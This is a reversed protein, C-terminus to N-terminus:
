FGHSASFHFRGSKKTDEGAEKDMPIGYDLMIPGIPTNIRLGLGFSSKFGGSNEVGNANKNSFIDGAKEWVNGVDYFAAVKLFSFLPYTYEINGVVMSEGGLPDHDSDSTVPGVKREEYGRITYAGGAFFREYIPLKETDGYPQALGLRGRVELVAGRPMPFYHSARGFFKTYNKDGGLGAFDLSATLYNGKRTNFVNDRSDYTLSPTVVSIINTGVEEQLDTSTDDVNGIKIQDLRYTLDGRLYESIEKGLRLDGGTVTEDYGYGTDTDRDHMRRYLDFGFSVPYDFMWPETFSLDFGNSLNGISARVKLNQGAGTFYPWNKWDFNKQEVEVFGVFQDVTSYGGGFSFAGTKSEKVDVVLNKKDPVTTEETDYSIEEFFGLNTLREKSRRLKEGDFKEGPHIRMERRIVIDKTKINGRVKIKDVYVVQNEAIDYTIDVRGTDTNVLTSEQIQASIYGRDFYLGQIGTLDKKMSEQSFVKGPICDTLNKLIEKETVDKNGQVNVSGVLYKKGEIIKIVVFLLYSNKAGPKVEYDVAVDTFGERQYFSKIREMDEKLVEEKLVGANFFWARKTKLLKLIRGSSFSQNGEFSIDKIRVKRGEVVTFLISVKNAQTNQEVKYNVEAQSYGMKEYMKKLIRVDESLSPYDLYQTERSKLQQKLKDDKMTILNIGSFSIKEIIPREVVTIIVKLGDKYDQTDIKIDSFFGLLYLRKLDDSIINEQYASGIRTKMKSIVVNTSIAKNGTVEIATVNKLAAPTTEVIASSTESIAAPKQEAQGSSNEEAWVFFRCNFVFLVTLLIFIFKRM